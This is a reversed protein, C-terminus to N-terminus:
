IQWTANITLISGSALVAVDYIKGSVNINLGRVGRTTTNYLEVFNCKPAYKADITIIPENAALDNVVNLYATLVITNGNKTLKCAMRPTVYNSDITMYSSIDETQLLGELEEVRKALANYETRPVWDENRTTGSLYGNIINEYNDLVEGQKEEAAESKEKALKTNEFLGSGTLSSISIAALILLLIITIVLAVLTIGENKTKKNELNSTQTYVELVNEMKRIKQM